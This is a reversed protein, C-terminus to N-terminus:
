IKAWKRSNCNGCLGQINLIYNSGGKALPIIHDVTLKKELKCIACLGKQREKVVKWEDATWSGEAGMERSRRNQKMQATWEPHEKRYKRVNEKSHLKLIEEPLEM